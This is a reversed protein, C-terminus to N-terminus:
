ANPQEVQHWGEASRTFLMIRYVERTWVTAGAGYGALEAFAEDESDFSYKRGNADRVMWERGPLGSAGM